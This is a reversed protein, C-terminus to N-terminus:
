EHQQGKGDATEYNANGWLDFAATTHLIATMKCQMKPNDQPLLRPLQGDGLVPSFGHESPGRFFANALARDRTTGLMTAVLNVDRDIARDLYCWRHQVKLDTRDIYWSRGSQPHPETLGQV